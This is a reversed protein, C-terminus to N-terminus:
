KLLLCEDWFGIKGTYISILVLGVGSAGELFGYRDEFSNNKKNWYQYGATEGKNGFRSFSDHLWYQYAHYYKKSKTESFLKFYIYTLGFSGHCVSADMIETDDASKRLLTSDIIALGKNIYNQKNLLRGINYISYGVTLNGYCWALRTKYEASEVDNADVWYPFNTQREFQLIYNICNDITSEEIWDCHKRMSAKTLMVAISPIGHSIGFNFIPTQFLNSNYYDPWRYQNKSVIDKLDILSLAIDKEYSIYRSEAPSSLFYLLGGLAGHLFDYNGKKLEQMSFEYVVDDLESFFDIDLDVLGINALYKFSWGIGSLGNCLSIFSPKEEIIKTIKDVCM